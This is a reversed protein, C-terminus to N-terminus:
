DRKPSRRALPIVLGFLLMLSLLGGLGLAVVQPTASHKPIVLTQHPWIPQRPDLQNAWAVDWIALGYRDAISISDAM